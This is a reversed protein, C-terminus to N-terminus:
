PLCARGGRTGPSRCRVSHGRAIHGAVQAIRQARNIVQRNNETERAVNQLARDLDELDNRCAVEVASPRTEHTLSDSHTKWM